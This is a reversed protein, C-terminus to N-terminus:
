VGTLGPIEGMSAPIHPAPCRASIAPRSASFDHSGGFDRNDVNITLPVKM